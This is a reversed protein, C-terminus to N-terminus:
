KGAAEKQIFERLSTGDVVWRGGVMGGSLQGKQIMRVVQERSLKLLQAARTAVELDKSEDRIV